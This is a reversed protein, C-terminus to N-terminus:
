PQPDTSSAAPLAVVVHTGQGSESRLSIEGQHQEVIQKAIALGLGTGQAKTSFFPQFAKAVEEPTMGKGSDAIEICARKPAGEHEVVQTRLSVQGEAPTAQIANLILNVVVQQIQYPDARVVAPEGSGNRTRDTEQILRVRKKKAEGEVLAAARDVIEDLTVTQLQPLSPRSYHLIDEVSKNLRDILLHTQGVVERRPDEAPFDRSLVSLVGRIGTLPNRIEHAIAAAMEGITALRDARALQEQHYSELERQAADLRSIMDNFNRALRGIEDKSNVQARASLDGHEASQMVEVLQQMPQDVFLTLAMWVGVAIVVLSLLSAIFALRKLASLQGFMRDLSLSVQLVGLIKQNADHCTHCAPQNFVPQVLTHIPTSGEKLVLPDVHGYYRALESQSLRTGREASQSSYKVIGKGDLLRVSEIDAHNGMSEMVRQVSQPDGTLMCTAIITKSLMGHLARLRDESSRLLEHEQLKIASWPAIGITLGLLAVIFSGVKLKLSSGVAATFRRPLHM